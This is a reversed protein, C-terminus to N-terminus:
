APKKNDPTEEFVGSIVTMRAIACDALELMKKLHERYDTVTEFLTLLQERGEDSTMFSEKLDDSSRTLAMFTFRRNVAISSTNAELQEVEEISFLAPFNQLDEPKTSQPCSEGQLSTNM